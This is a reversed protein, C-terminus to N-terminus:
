QSDSSVERAAEVTKAIVDGMDQGTALTIRGTTWGCEYCSVECTDGMRKLWLENEGCKPCNPLNVRM